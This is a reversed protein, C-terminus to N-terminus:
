YDFSSYKLRSTCASNKNSVATTTKKISNMYAIPDTEFIEFDEPKYRTRIYYSWNCAIFSEELYGSQWLRECLDFTDTKTASAIRKFFKKSIKNVAPVRVGYSYIKEKFFRRSSARTNENIQHRLEERIEEIIATDM